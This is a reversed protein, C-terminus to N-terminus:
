QIFVINLPQNLASPFFKEDLQKIKGYTLSKVYGTVQDAENYWVYTGREPIITGDYIIKFNDVFSVVALFLNFCFYNFITWTQTAFKYCM